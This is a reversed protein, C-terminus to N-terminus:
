TLVEDIAKIWRSGCDSFLINICANDKYFCTRFNFGVLMNTHSQCHICGLEAPTLTVDIIKGVKRRPRRHAPSAVNFGFIIPTETCGALHLLGCDLGLVFESAEMISAAELLSTKNRYSLGFQDLNLTGDYISFNDTEDIMTKGVFVPTIGRAKMAELIPIWYDGPVNRNPQIADILVVAFKERNAKMRKLEAPLYNWLDRLPPYYNWDPPPPNTHAFYNFGCDLLHASAANIGLHQLEMPGKCPGHDPLDLFTQYDLLKWHSFEKLWHNALEHFYKLCILQGHVWTMETAVYRIAQMWCIYDGMGGNIFIFSLDFPFGSTDPRFGMRAPYMMPQDRKFVLAPIDRPSSGVAKM